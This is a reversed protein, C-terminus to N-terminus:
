FGKVLGTCIKRENNCMNCKYVDFKSNSMNLTGKKIMTGKCKDCPVTKTDKMPM